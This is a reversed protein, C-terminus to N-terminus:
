GIAWLAGYTEAPASRWCPTFIFISLYHWFNLGVGACLLPEFYGARSLDGMLFSKFSVNKSFFGFLAFAAQAM